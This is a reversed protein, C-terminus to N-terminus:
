FPMFKIQEEHSLKNQKKQKLNTLKSVTIGHIQRNKSEIAVAAPFQNTTIISM